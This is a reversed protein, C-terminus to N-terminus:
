QNQFLDFYDCLIQPLQTSKGSGTKGYIIIIQSDEKENLREIINEKQKM